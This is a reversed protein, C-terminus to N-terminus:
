EDVHIVNSLSNVIPSDSGAQCTMMDVSENIGIDVYAHSTAHFNPDIHVASYVTGAHLGWSARGDTLMHPSM